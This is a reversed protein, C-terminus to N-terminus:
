FPHDPNISFLEFKFGFGANEVVAKVKKLFTQGNEDPPHKAVVTIVVKKGEAKPYKKYLEGSEIFALYANLKTQLALQHKESDRWDLHDSVTLEVNDSERDIGVFDITRNEEISM